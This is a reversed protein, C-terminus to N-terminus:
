ANGQGAIVNKDQIIKVDVSPFKLKDSLKKQKFPFEFKVGHYDTFFTNQRYSQNDKTADFLKPDQLRTETKVMIGDLKKDIIWADLIQKANKTRMNALAPNADSGDPNTNPLASAM